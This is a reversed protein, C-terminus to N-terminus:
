SRNSAKLAKAKLMSVLRDFQLMQELEDAEEPSLLGADQRELLEVARQQAEESVKFALIESPSAKKVLFELFDDYVPSLHPSAM